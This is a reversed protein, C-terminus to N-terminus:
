AEGDRQPLVQVRASSRDLKIRLLDCPRQEVQNGVAEIGRSPALDFRAVLAKFWDEASGRPVEALCDFDTNAVVAGADQRFYAFLHEIREEGCLRCPFSRPESERHGMVDNDLLVAAPDVDLSLGADKGLEDNCQRAGVANGGARLLALRLFGRGEGLDSLGTLLVAHPVRASARLNESSPALSFVTHCSGLMHRRYPQQRGFLVHVIARVV